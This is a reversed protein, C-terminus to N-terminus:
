NRRGFGWGIDGPYLSREKRFNDRKGPQSHGWWHNSVLAQPTRYAQPSKLELLFRATVLPQQTDRGQSEIERPELKKMHFPM